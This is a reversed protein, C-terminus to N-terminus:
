ARKKFMYSVIYILSCVGLISIVILSGVGTNVNTIVTQNDKSSRSSSNSFGGSGNNKMTSDKTSTSGNNNSEKTWKAYLTMDKTVKDNFNYKTKGKKDTYWGDFTYGERKPNDIKKVTKNEEVTQEVKKNTGDNLEFIVKYSNAKNEMYQAYLTLSENNSYTQGGSYSTGSGDAKTNWGTFTYGDKIPKTSSITYSSGHNFSGTAPAGSGGNADYKVEYSNIKWQAYLTGGYSTTGWTSGPQYTVGSGDANTNWSTFTYGTRTPKTSSITYSSGATFSGTAPAGSGGNANYVMYYTTVAPPNYPNDPTGPDSTQNNAALCSTSNTYQPAAVCYSAAGCVSLTTWNYRAVSSDGYYYCAKDETANNAEDWCAYFVTTKSATYSMSGAPIVVHSSNCRAQTGWGAFTYGSRTGPNPVPVACYGASANPTCTQIKKGNSGWPNFFTVSIDTSAAFSDKAILGFELACISFVVVSLILFKFSKDSAKKM